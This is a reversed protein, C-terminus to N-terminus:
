PTQPLFSDETIDPHKAAFNELLEYFAEFVDLNEKIQGIKEYLYELGGLMVCVFHEEDQKRTKFDERFAKDMRMQASPCYSKDALLVMRFFFQIDDDYRIMQEPDIKAPEIPKDKKIEDDVKATRGYELGLVISLYFIDINRCKLLDKLSRMMEAHRGKILFLQKFISNNEQKM